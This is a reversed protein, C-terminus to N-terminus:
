RDLEFNQTLGQKLVKQLTKTYIDDTKVHFILSNTDM